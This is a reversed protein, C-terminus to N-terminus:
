NRTNTTRARPKTSALVTVKGKSQFFFRVQAVMSIDRLPVSCLPLDNSRETLSIADATIVVASEVWDDM